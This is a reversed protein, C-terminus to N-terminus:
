TAPDWGSEGLLHSMRRELRRLKELPENRLRRDSPLHPETGDPDLVAISQRLSGRIVRVDELSLGVTVHSQWTDEPGSGARLAGDADTAM